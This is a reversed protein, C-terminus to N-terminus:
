HVLKKITSPRQAWLINIEDDSFGRGDRLDLLYGPLHGLVVEGSIIDHDKVGPLLYHVPAFVM